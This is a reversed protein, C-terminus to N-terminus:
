GHLPKRTDWAALDLKKIGKDMHPVILWSAPAIHGYWPLSAHSSHCDACSRNLIREVEANKLKVRDSRGDTSGHAVTPQGVQVFQCSGFIAGAFLAIRGVHKM